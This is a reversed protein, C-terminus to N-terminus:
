YYAAGSSIASSTFARYSSGGGTGAISAMNGAPSLALLASNTLNGSAVKIQSSSAGWPAASGLNNGVATNTIADEIYPAAQASQFVLLGLAVLSLQKKVADLGADALTLSVGASSSDRLIERSSLSSLAKAGQWLGWPLGRGWKVGKAQNVREA